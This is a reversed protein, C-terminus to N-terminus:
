NNKGSLKVTATAGLLALMAIITYLGAEDGTNPSKEKAESVVKVTTDGNVTFTLKGDKVSDKSEKGNVLVSKIKYGDATGITATVTDGDIVLIKDADGSSPGASELAATSNADWEATVTYMNSVKVYHYNNSKDFNSPPNIIDTNVTIPDNSAQLVKKDAIAINNFTVSTVSASIAGCGMAPAKLDVASNDIVLNGCYIGDSASSKVNLTTDKVTVDKATSPSNAPIEAFIGNGVTDITLSGSGTITLNCHAHIGRSDGTNTITNTGVLKITVDESDTISIVGYSSYGSMNMTSNITANNLTLEKTDPNYSVTGSGADVSANESTLETGNVYIYYRTAEANVSVLGFGLVMILTIALIRLKSKM